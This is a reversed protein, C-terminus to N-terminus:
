EEMIEKDKLKQAEDLKKIYSDTIDQIEKTYKKLDDETIESNKEKKKLAEVSDRRLNRVAVKSEEAKKAVFKTLETRREGTLEPMTLRISEGDNAPTIGLSSALLAKEIVKLSSKDFPAILIKRGDPVTITAIQKIPTPNGYYDAKIDAVLGPHARGTRIAVYETKLFELSKEMKEHMSKIEAKPM